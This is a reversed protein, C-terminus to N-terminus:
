AVGAEEPDVTPLTELRHGCSTKAGAGKLGMLDVRRIQRVRQSGRRHEHVRPVRDGQREPVDVLPRAALRDDKEHEERAGPLARVRRRDEHTMFTQISVNVDEANAAVAQFFRTWGDVGKWTGAWPLSPPGEFILESEPAMVGLIAAIDGRSFADYISKVATLNAQESM